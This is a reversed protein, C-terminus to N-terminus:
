LASIQSTLLWGAGILCGCVTLVLRPGFRDNLGGMVSALLGQSIWVLSFAGATMARTWGFENSLPKFFVGFAYHVSFILVMSLSAAVVITYGYFSGPQAGAARRVDQGSMTFGKSHRVPFLGLLVLPAYM